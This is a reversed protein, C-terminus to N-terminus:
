SDLWARHQSALAIFPVVVVFHPNGIIRQDWPRFADPGLPTSARSSVHLLGDRLAKM